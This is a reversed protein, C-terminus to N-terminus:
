TAHEYYPLDSKVIRTYRWKQDPNTIHDPRFQRLMERGWTAEENTYPDNTIFRCEWANFDKFQPDLEKALHAKEFHLYRAVQGDPNSHDTFVIGNVSGGKGEREAV